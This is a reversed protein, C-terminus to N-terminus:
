SKVQILAVSCYQNEILWMLFLRCTGCEELLVCASFSHIITDIKWNISHVEFWESYVEALNYLM